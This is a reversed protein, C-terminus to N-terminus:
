KEYVEVRFNYGKKVIDKLLNYDIEKLNKMKEFSILNVEKRPFIFVQLPGRYLSNIEESTLARNYIRVEDITGNFYEAKWTFKSRGIQLPKDGSIRNDTFSAVLNSDLYVRSLGSNVVVFTLMHFNESDTYSINKSNTGSRFQLNNETESTFIGYVTQSLIGDESNKSIMGSARGELSNVKVWLNITYNSSDLFPSHLVEVYDDLGDFSLAKGFKGDVLIPPTEGDSNTSNADYLFGNNKNGSYDLTMNRFVDDFSLWLVLNSFSGYDKMKISSSNSFFLQFTRSSNASINIELFLISSKLYGSNCFDQYVFKFPVENFNEDYIRLSENWVLGICESDFNVVLTVAENLRDYGSNELILFPIVYYSSALGITSPIIKEKEWSEPDGRSIIENVFDVATKRMEVLKTWQPGEASINVLYVIVSGIFIIFISVAIILDVNM